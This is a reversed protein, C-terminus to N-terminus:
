LKLNNLLTTLESKYSSSVNWQAITKLIEERKMFFHFNIFDAFDKDPNKLNKIMSHVITGYKIQDNYENSRKPDTKPVQELSPENAIPDKVLILGQISVLVQLLNSQKSDWSQGFTGLLSLCVKGCDYLNPNFSNCGITAKPNFAGGTTKFKVTPPAAPFNSPLEMDFVFVGNEYPTDKPGVILFKFQNIKTENQLVLIPADSDPLDNVLQKTEKTITRLPVQAGSNFSFYEKFGEVVNLRNEQIYKRYAENRNKEELLNEKSELFKELFPAVKNAIALNFHDATLIIKPNEQVYMSLAGFFNELDAKVAVDPLANSFKEFAKTLTSMEESDLKALEGNNVRIITSLDNTYKAPANRVTSSPIPNVQTQPLETLLQSHIITAALPWKLASGQPCLRVKQTSALYLKKLFDELSIDKYIKEFDAYLNQLSAMKNSDMKTRFVELDFQGNVDKFFIAKNGYASHALEIANAIEAYKKESFNSKWKLYFSSAKKLYAQHCNALGNPSNALFM